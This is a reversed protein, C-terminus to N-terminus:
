LSYNRYFLDRALEDLLSRISNSDSEFRAMQEACADYRATDEAYATPSCKAYYKKLLESRQEYSANKWWEVWWEILPEYKRESRPKAQQRKTEQRQEFPVEDIYLPGFLSMPDSRPDSDEICETGEKDFRLDVPAKGEKDFFVPRGPYGTQVGVGELTIEVVRASINTTGTDLNIHQGIVLSDVMARRKQQEQARMASIEQQRQERM